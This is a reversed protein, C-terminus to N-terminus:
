AWTTALFGKHGAPEAGILQDGGVRREPGGLGLEAAGVELGVGAREVGVQPPQGELRGLLQDVAHLGAGVVGTHDGLLDLVQSREGDRVVREDLKGALGPGLVRRQGFVVELARGGPRRVGGEALQALAVAGLVAGHAEEGAHDGFAASGREETLTRGPGPEPGGVIGDGAGAGRDEGVLLM